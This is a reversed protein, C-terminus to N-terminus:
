PKCLIKANEVASNNLGYVTSQQGSVEFSFSKHM